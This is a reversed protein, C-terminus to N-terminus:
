SWLGEEPPQGRFATKMKDIVYYQRRLGRPWRSASPTSRRTSSRSGVSTPVAAQVSGLNMKRSVDPDDGATGGPYLNVKVKGGLDEGV